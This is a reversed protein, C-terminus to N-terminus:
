RVSYGRRRLADGLSVSGQGREAVWAAGDYVTWYGSNPDVWITFGSGAAATAPLMSKGSVGSVHPTGKAQVVLSNLNDIDSM